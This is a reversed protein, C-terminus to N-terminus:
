QNIESPHLRYFVRYYRLRYSHILAERLTDGRPVLVQHLPLHKGGLKTEPLVGSRVM